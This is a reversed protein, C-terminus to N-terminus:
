INKFKQICYNLIIPITVGTISYIIWAYPINATPFASIDWNCLLSTIKFSLFHLCLIIITNNGLYSFVDSIYNTSSIKISIGLILYIGSISCIIFFPINQIYGISLEIHGLQTFSLLIIFSICAYIKNFQIKEIHRKTIYGCYIISIVIFERALNLPIRIGKTILYWGTVLLGVFILHQIIKKLRLQYSLYLIVLMLSSSILLSKLFWLPALLLEQGNMLAITIGKNIFAKIDYETMSFGQFPTPEKYFGIFVFLNHFSLFILGYILWTGYLKTLRKRFFEKKEFIYKDKFFYGTAFYFLAMHFLYIFDHILTPCHTHGIVMLVIGIGKLISLPKSTERFTINM